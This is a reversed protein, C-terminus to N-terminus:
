NEIHYEIQSSCPSDTKKKKKKKKRVAGKTKESRYNVKVIIIHNHHKKGM